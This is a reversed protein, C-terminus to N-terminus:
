FTYNAKMGFMRKVPLSFRVENSNLIPGVFFRVDTGYLGAQLVNNKTLNTVFAEITLAENRVGARLNVTTSAGVKLVNTYDTFNSSRHALDFRSYWDYDGVFKDTFEAGVSVTTKPTTPLRNGLGAKPDGLIVNCDACIYAGLNSTKVKSENYGIATQFSLNQTAKIQGEFEVGKLDVLGSNVVINFINVNPVTVATGAQGNKWKDYYVALTTRAQGDLFTSKLGAEWNDLQEQEYAAKAAPQVAVLQAVVAPTNVFLATNFGGPRYGRSFLAYVTSNEAYKYDLSIRPSFSKYTADLPNAAAGVLAAPRGGVATNIPQVHIKDWQYRAEATATLEDTIDFYAGGFVGSTKIDTTTRGGAAFTGINTNSLTGGAPNHVDIYNGGATWRFREKAPSTVRLEQSWDQTRSAAVTTFNTYPLTGPFAAAVPNPTDHSDRYLLDLNTQTKDAHYASLSSFNYGSETDYDVKVDAQKANRKLGFKQNFTLDFAMTDPNGKTTFLKNVLYPTLTSDASIFTPNIQNAKPLTGCIYGKNVLNTLPLGAPPTFKCNLSEGKLAGQAPTGDRDEFYNLFSKIKLSDSPTFVMVQSLSRTSQAGMKESTNAANTWQGGRYWHRGSVRVAFKDAVVPGEVSLTQENSGYSGYEVGVRGKFTNSPDRTVYNIAGAFTSRGFFVSQPGKLVEVREVEGAAPGQSSLVPAGDVFLSGGGAAGVQAVNIFLGRFTLAVASRDNRGSGGTQNVFNFGPTFRAIDNILTIGRAEIDKATFATIAIPVQMLNEEVKRATVVIEELALGQAQATQQAMAPSIAPLSAAIAILSASASLRSLTQSLRM